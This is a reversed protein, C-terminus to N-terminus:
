YEKADKDMKEMAKHFEPRSVEGDGDTDWERMLDLVRSSASRLAAAIQQAVPIEGNLDLKLGGLTSSAPAKKIKQALLGELRKVEAQAAAHGKRVTSLEDKAEAHEKTVSVLQEKAVNLEGELSTREGTILRLQVKTDNLSAELAAQEKEYQKCVAQHDELTSEVQQEYESRINQQLAVAETVETRLTNREEEFSKRQDVLLREMLEQNASHQTEAQERAKDRESEALKATEYWSELKEELEEITKKQTQTLPKLRALM